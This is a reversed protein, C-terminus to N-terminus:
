GPVPTSAPATAPASSQMSSCNSTVSARPQSSSSASTPLTDIFVPVSITTEGSSNADYAYAVFDTGNSRGSSPITLQVQFDRANAGAGPVTSGLFLGGQDRSGLFFDIRSVGAGQSALPDFASGSVIYGGGALFDGPNPNALSFVPCEPGNAGTGMATQAAVPTGALNCVVLAIGGALGGVGLVRSRVGSRLSVMPASSRPISALRTAYRLELFWCRHPTTRTSTADATTRLGYTKRM